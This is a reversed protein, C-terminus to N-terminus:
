GGMKWEQPSKGTYKRFSRNFSSYNYYGVSAAVDSIAWSTHGLLFKAREMKQSIMYNSITNGTRKKFVRNLYDQNLYVKEALEEVTIEESLHEQIYTIVYDVARQVDSKQEQKTSDNMYIRYFAEGKSPTGNAKGFRWNDYIVDYYHELQEAILEMSSFQGIFCVTHMGTEAKAAKQLEVSNHEIIERLHDESQETEMRFIMLLHGDVMTEIQLAADEVSFLDLCKKKLYTMTSKRDEKSVTTEDMIHFVMVPLYSGDIPLDIGNEKMYQQLEERDTSLEGSFIQRWFRMEVASKAKELSQKTIAQLSVKEAAKQLSNSLATFDLPKLIYDISGLRVAQQAYDFSAHCTIFICAVDQRASNIWELLDLGTGMPMEIDCLIVKVDPNALHIKAEEINSATYIRKFPLQAWEVNQLVVQQASLEDDVILLEM